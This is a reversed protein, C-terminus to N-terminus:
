VRHDIVHPVARTLQPVASGFASRMRELVHVEIVYDSIASVTSEIAELACSTSTHNLYDSIPDCEIVCAYMPM